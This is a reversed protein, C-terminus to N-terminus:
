FESVARTKLVQSQLSLNAQNEAANLALTWRAGLEAAAEGVITPDLNLTDLRPAKDRYEDLLGLLGRLAKWHCSSPPLEGSYVQDMLALLHRTVYHQKQSVTRWRERHTSLCSWLDSLSVENPLDLEQIRLGVQLGFYAFIRRLRCGAVSSPMLTCLHSVNHTHFSSHGLLRPARTMVEEVMDQLFTDLSAAPCLDLLSHLILTLYRSPLPIDIMVPDLGLIALMSLLSVSPPQPGIREPLTLLTAILNLTNGLLPKITETDVEHKGAFHKLYFIPLNNACEDKVSAGPLKVQSCALDSSLGYQLVPNLGLNLLATLMHRSTLKWPLGCNKLLELLSRRVVAHEQADAIACANFFLCDAVMCFEQPTAYFRSQGVSPALRVAFIRPSGLLEDVLANSLGAALLRSRGTWGFDAELCLKSYTLTPPNDLVAMGPPNLAMTSPTATAQAVVLEQSGEELTAGEGEEKIRKDVRDLEEEKARQSDSLPRLISDLDQSEGYDSQQSLSTELLLNEIGDDIDMVEEGEEMKNDVEEEEVDTEPAPGMRLKQTQGRRAVTGSDAEV